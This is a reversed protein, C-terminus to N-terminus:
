EEPVENGQPLYGKAGVGNLVLRVGGDRAPRVDFLLCCGDGSKLPGATIVADGDFQMLDFVQLTDEDLFRLTCFPNGAKSVRTECELILCSSFHVQSNGM